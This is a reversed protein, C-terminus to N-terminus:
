LPLRAPRSFDRLKAYREERVGRSRRQRLAHARPLNNRPAADGLGNPDGGSRRLSVFGISDNM